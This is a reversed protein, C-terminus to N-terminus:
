KFKEQAASADFPVLKKSGERWTLVSDLAGSKAVPLKDAATISIPKEETLSVGFMAGLAKISETSGTWKRSGRGSGLQWGPTPIGTEINYTLLDTFGKVASNIVAQARLLYAYEASLAKPPLEQTLSTSVTELLCAAQDQFASCFMRSNCNRCHPGTACEASHLAADMRGSLWAMADMAEAVPMDWVKVPEGFDRPQYIHLAIREANGFPQLMLLYCLLQWNWKAAVHIFGFKFDVVHLTATQSNYGYFDCTGRLTDGHTLPTEWHDAGLDVLDLAYRAAERSMDMFEDTPILGTDNLPEAGMGFGQVLAHCLDGELAV